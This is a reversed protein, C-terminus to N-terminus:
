RKEIKKLAKEARDALQRRSEAIRRLVPAAARAEPGVWGLWDITAPDGPGHDLKEILLRLAEENRELRYLEVAVDTDGQRYMEELLYPVAARAEPGIRSLAERAARAAYDDREALGLGGPKRKLSEILEPVAERAPPGWEGVARIAVARDGPTFKGVFIRAVGPGADQEVREREEPSAKLFALHAALAEPTGVAPLLFLASHRRDSDRQKLDARLRPLARAALKPLAQRMAEQNRHDATEPLLHEYFVIGPAPRSNFHHLHELFVDAAAPVSPAMRALAQFARSRPNRDVDRLKRDALCAKLVPVGDASRGVQWLLDAALVKQWWDASRLGARLAPLADRALAPRRALDDAAEACVEEHRSHLGELLLPLTGNRRMLGWRAKVCDRYRRGDV